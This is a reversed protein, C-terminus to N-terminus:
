SHTPAIGGKGGLVVMTHLPVAKSKTFNIVLMDDDDDYGNV